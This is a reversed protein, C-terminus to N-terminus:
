DHPTGLCVGREGWVDVPRKELLGLTNVAWLCYRGVVISDDIMVWFVCALM